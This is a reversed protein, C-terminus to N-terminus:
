LGQDRKWDAWNIGRLFRLNEPSNLIIPELARWYTEIWRREWEDSCSVDQPAPLHVYSMKIGDGQWLATAFFVPVGLSRALAPVGRSFRWSTGLRDLTVLNEGTWVDPAAFLVGGRRLHLAANLLIQSRQSLNGPDCLTLGPRSPVSAADSRTWVQLPIDQAMLVNMAMKPPGIHAAALIVGGNIRAAEVDDWDSCDVLDLAEARYAANSLRLRIVEGAVLGWTARQIWDRELDPKLNLHRRGWELLIRRKPLLISLSKLCALQAKIPLGLGSLIHPLLM